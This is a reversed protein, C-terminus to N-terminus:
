DRAALDRSKSRSSLNGTTKVKRLRVAMGSAALNDVRMLSSACRSPKASTPIEGTLSGIIGGPRCKGAQTELRGEGGKNQGRFMAARPAGHSSAAHRTASMALDPM